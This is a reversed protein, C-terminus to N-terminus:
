LIQKKIDNLQNYLLEVKDKTCGEKKYEIKNIKNIILLFKQEQNDKSSTQIENKLQELEEFYPRLKRECKALQLFYLFRNRIVEVRVNEVKKEKIKYDFFDLESEKLEILSNINSTNKIKDKFQSKEAFAKLFLKESFELSLKYDGERLHLRNLFFISDGIVLCNEDIVSLSVNEGWYTNPFSIDISTGSRTYDKNIELLDRSGNRIQYIEIKKQDKCNEIYVLGLRFSYSSIIDQIYNAGFAISIPVLIIVLKKPLPFEYFSFKAKTEGGNPLFSLPFYFIAYSLFICVGINGFAVRPFLFVILVGFISLFFYPNKLIQQIM